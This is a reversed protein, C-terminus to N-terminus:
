ETATSKKKLNARGKSIILDLLDSVVLADQTYTLEGGDKVFQEDGGPELGIYKAGFLGDTQISASTDLPLPVSKDIKMVVNARHQEDLKEAVVRGVPLGSLRVDAGVFLGDIQNFRASVLYTTGDGDRAVGGSRNMIGIVAVFAMVTFFGIIIERTEKNAFM